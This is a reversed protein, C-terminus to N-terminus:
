SFRMNHRVFSECKLILFWHSVTPNTLKEITRKLELIENKLLMIERQPDIEENIIAETSIM